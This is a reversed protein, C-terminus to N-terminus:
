QKIAGMAAAKLWMDWEAEWGAYCINILVFHITGVRQDLSDGGYEAM